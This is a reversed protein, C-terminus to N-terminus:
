GGLKTKTRFPYRVPRYALIAQNLKDVDFTQTNAFLANQSDMIPGDVKNSVPPPRQPGGAEPPLESDESPAMTPPPEYSACKLCAAKM